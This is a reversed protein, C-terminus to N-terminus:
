SAPFLADLRKLTEVKDIKRNNDRVLCSTVDKNANEIPKHLDGIEQFGAGYVRKLITTNRDAEAESITSSAQIHSAFYGFIDEEREEELEKDLLEQAKKLEEQDLMAAIFYLRYKEETNSFKLVLQILEVHTSEILAVINSGEFLEHNQTVLRPRNKVISILARCNRSDSLDLTDKILALDVEMNEAIYPRLHPSNTWITKFEEAACKKLFAIYKDRLFYSLNEANHSALKVFLQQSMNEAIGKGLTRWLFFLNKESMKNLAEIAEPDKNALGNSLQQVVETYQLVSFPIFNYLTYASYAVAQRITEQAMVRSLEDSIKVMSFLKDTVDQKLHLLGGYNYLTLKAEIENALEQTIQESKLNSLAPFCHHLPQHKVLTVYDKTSLENLHNSSALLIIRARKEEDTNVHDLLLRIVSANMLINKDFLKYIKDLNCYLYDPGGYLLIQQKSFYPAIHQWRGSPRIQEIRDHSLAKVHAKTITDLKVLSFHRDTWGKMRSPTIDRIALSSFYTDSRLNDFYGKFRDIIATLMIERTLKFGTYSM